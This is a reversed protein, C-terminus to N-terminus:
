PVGAIPHGDQDVVVGRIATGRAQVDPPAGPDCPNTPEVCASTWTLGLVASIWRPRSLPLSSTAM